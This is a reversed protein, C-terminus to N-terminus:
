PKGICYVSDGTRIILKGSGVACGYQTPGSFMAAARKREETSENAGAKEAAAVADPDWLQNEALIKFEKGAAIVTTLRKTPVSESATLTAEIGLFAPWSDGPVVCLFLSATSLFLVSM